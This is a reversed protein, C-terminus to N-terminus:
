GGGKEELIRSLIKARASLGAPLRLQINALRDDRPAVSEHIAQKVLVNLQPPEALACNEPLPYKEVLSKQVSEELGCKTLVAM